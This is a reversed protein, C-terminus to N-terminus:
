NEMLPSHRLKGEDRHITLQDLRPSRSWGLEHWVTDVLYGGAILLFFALTAVFM